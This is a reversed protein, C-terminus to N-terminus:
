TIAMLCEQQNLSGLDGHRGGAGRCESSRLLMQVCPYCIPCRAYEVHDGSTRILNLCLVKKYIVM